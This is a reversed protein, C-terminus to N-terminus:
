NCRELWLGVFAEIDAFDIVTDANIDAPCLRPSTVALVAPTTATIGFPSSVTCSYLGIDTQQVGFIQLTPTGTGHFRADDTLPTGNLTWTYSLPASGVAKVELTVDNNEEVVFSGTASLVTPQAFEPGIAIASPGPLNTLIPNAAASVPDYVFIADDQSWCVRGNSAFVDIGLAEDVLPGLMNTPGGGIPVSSLQGGSAWLVACQLADLTLSTSQGAFEPTLHTVGPGDTRARFIGLNGEAWYLFGRSSDVRLDQPGGTLQDIVTEPQGDPLAVRQIRDLVPDAWYITNSQQDFAIGKPFGLNQAAPIQNSGDLDARFITGLGTDAWYIFGAVDDIVLGQPGTLGDILRTPNSGDAEARWIEKLTRDVWYVHTEAIAASSLVASAIATCQFRPISRKAGM